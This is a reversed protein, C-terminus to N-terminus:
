RAAVIHELVTRAGPTLRRDPLWVAHLVRDLRVGDDVPLAVLRGARIEDRLALESLVIPALGTAAAVKLASNSGYEGAIRPGGHGALAADIVERTGSGQERVLLPVASLGASDLPTTWAGAFGPAAAILLRDRGIVEARFGAPLTLSEVLGFDCRRERVAALVAASNEVTLGVEIDPRRAHLTVLHAPLLYEAVTLSARIRVTGARADQIARAGANLNSYAEIVEAAWGAVAEGEVTLESGRPSRRLLPVGLDRELARLSRSANPQALGVAAAAQGISRASSKLAVLLGLAQLEPWDQMNRM